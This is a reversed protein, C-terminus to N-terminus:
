GHHGVFPKSVLTSDLTGPLQGYICIKTATRSPRYAGSGAQDFVCFRSRYPLTREVVFPVGSGALVRIRAVGRCASDGM